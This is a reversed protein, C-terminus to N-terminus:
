CQQEKVVPSQLCFHFPNAGQHGFIVQVVLAGWAGAERPWSCTPHLFEYVLRGKGGLDRVQRSLMTYYQHGWGIDSVDSMWWGGWQSGVFRESSWCCGYVYMHVHEAFSGGSAGLRRGHDAKPCM